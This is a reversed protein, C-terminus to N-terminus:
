RAPRWENEDYADLLRNLFTFDTTKPPVNEDVFGLFFELAEKEYSTASGRPVPGLMKLRGEAYARSYDRLDFEASTARQYAMAEKQLENKINSLHSLVIGRRNAAAMAQLRELDQQLISRELRLQAIEETLNKPLTSPNHLEKENDFITGPFYIWAAIFLLLIISAEGFTKNTRQKERTQEFRRLWTLVAPALVEHFLEYRVIGQSDTTSRLVRAGSESLTRLVAELQAEEVGTYAALDEPGLVVRMGTPTVLQRLAKAAAEQAAPSLSALTDDLHAQVITRAGGLTDVLTTKRLVQSGLRKEEEWLRSLVLQLYPTEIRQANSGVPATPALGCGGLALTGVAVQSLVEEVLDPEAWYTEEPGLRLRRSWEALPNEIAKRAARSDLHELRLYNMFLGPIRGKFRDLQALAEERVCVLTGVRLDPANVVRAFETDFDANGRVPHYLFYDEFQDLLILLVGDLRETWARLAEALRLNDPVAEVERGGWADRVAGEVAGLLGPLPDGRWSNFYAVALEPTEREQLNTRALARLHYVLGAQLLSSKGVGSAGYLLTLRAGRLNAAVIERDVERGFFFAADKETYPLLGKYPSEPLGAGIESL